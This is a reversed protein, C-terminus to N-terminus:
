IINSGTHYVKSQGEGERFCADKCSEAEKSVTTVLSDRGPWQHPSCFDQNQLYVMVRELMGEYTFEYPLYGPFSQM